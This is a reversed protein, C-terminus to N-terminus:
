IPPLFRTLVLMTDPHISILIRTEQDSRVRSRGVSGWSASKGDVTRTPCFNGEGHGLFNVVVSDRLRDERQVAFPETTSKTSGIGGRDRVEQVVGTEASEGKLRKQCQVGSLLRAALGKVTFGRVPM